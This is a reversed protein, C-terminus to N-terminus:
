IQILIQLLRACAAGTRRDFWLKGVEKRKRQRWRM